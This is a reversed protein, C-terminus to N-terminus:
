VKGNDGTPKPPFESRTIAMERPADIGVRTKGRDLEMILFTIFVGPSVEVRIAERCKRSLCLM